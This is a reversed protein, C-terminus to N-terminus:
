PGRPLPERPQNERSSLSEPAPPLPHLRPLTFNYIGRQTTFFLSTVENLTNISSFLRNLDQPWMHKSADCRFGAVGLDMLHNLYLKQQKQVVDSSQDLDRLSVLRCNRCEIPDDFDHINGDYSHCSRNDHFDRATFGM